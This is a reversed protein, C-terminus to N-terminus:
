NDSAGGSQEQMIDVIDENDMDLSQPTDTEKILEGDFLFRCQSATLNFKKCAVDILKTM